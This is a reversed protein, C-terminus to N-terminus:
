ETEAADLLSYLGLNVLFWHTPPWKFNNLKLLKIANPSSFSWFTPFATIIFIFYRDVMRACQFNFFAKTGIRIRSPVFNQGLFSHLMTKSMYASVQLKCSLAPKVYVGSKKNISCPKMLHFASMTQQDQSQHSLVQPIPYIPQHSVGM